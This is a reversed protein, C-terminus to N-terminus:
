GNALARSVQLVTSAPIALGAKEGSIEAYDIGIVNGAADVLPGGSAGHVLPVSTELVQGSSLGGVEIGSALRLVDGSLVPQSLVRDNGLAVVPTGPQQSASSADFHAPKLGKARVRILALDDAPDRGVITASVRKGSAFRVYVERALGEGDGTLVHNNTVILGDSSYIVGTGLSELIKTRSSSLVATVDVVSPKVERAIAGVEVSTFAATVSPTGGSSGTPLHEGIRSRLANIGSTVKKEDAQAKSAFSKAKAEASRVASETGSAQPLLWWVLLGVAVLVVCVLVLRTIWRLMRLM